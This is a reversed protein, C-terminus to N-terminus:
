TLNYNVTGGMMEKSNSVRFDKNEAVETLLMETASNCINQAVNKAYYNVSKQTTENVKDDTNLIVVTLIFAVALAMIISSQGM